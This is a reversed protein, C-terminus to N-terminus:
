YTCVIGWLVSLKRCWWNDDRSQVVRCPPGGGSAAYWLIWYGLVTITSRSGSHSWPVSVAEIKFWWKCYLRRLHNPVFTIEQYMFHIVCWVWMPITFPRSCLESRVTGSNHTQRNLLSLLNLKLTLSMVMSKITRQRTSYDWTCTERIM